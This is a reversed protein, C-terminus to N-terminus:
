FEVLREKQEEENSAQIIFIQKILSELVSRDIIEADWVKDNFTLLWVTYLRDTIFRVIRYIDKGKSKNKDLRFLLEKNNRNICDFYTSVIIEKVEIWNNIISHILLLPNRAILKDALM